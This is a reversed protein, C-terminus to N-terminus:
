FFDTDGLSITWASRDRDLPAALGKGVLHLTVPSPAFGLRLLAPPPVGVPPVAFVAQAGRSEAVCRRLLAGAEAPPALCEMVLGVRRGRHLKRGVVAFGNASAFARYDRPAELYRWNLYRADRVLHNRLAPALRAYVADQEPGFRELPRVSRSLKDRARPLPRAWVRRRDIASWGLPGLFLPETPASAFALVCDVGRAAGEQEHRRELAQFVGLGRASAATTAHVSFAVTTERGRVVARALEHGAVGVVEGDRVAVSRLSGAPNRDFFWDLEAGSLAADRWAVELLRLYDARREPEYAVTEFASM